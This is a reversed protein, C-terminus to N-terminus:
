SRLRPSPAPKEQYTSSLALEGGDFRSSLMQAPVCISFAVAALHGHSFRYFGATETWNQGSEVHVEPM